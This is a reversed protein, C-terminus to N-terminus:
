ASVGRTEELMFRNLKELQSTFNQYNEDSLLGKLKDSNARHALQNINNSAKQLLLVSRKADRSPAPRAIVQVKNKAIYDRFLESKTMNASSCQNQFDAYVDVTVRFSITSGFRESDTKTKAVMVEGKLNLPM